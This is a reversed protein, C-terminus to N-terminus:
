LDCRGPRTTALGTRWCLSTQQLNASLLPAPTIHNRLMNVLKSQQLPRGQLLPTIAFPNDDAPFQKLFLRSTQTPTLPNSKKVREYIWQEVEQLREAGDYAELLDSLSQIRNEPDLCYAACMWDNDIFRTMYKQLKDRAQQIPFCRANSM